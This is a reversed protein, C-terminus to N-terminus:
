KTGTVSDECVPGRGLAIHAPRDKALPWNVFLSARKTPACVRVSQTKGKRMRVVFSVMKDPQVSEYYDFNKRGFETMREYGTYPGRCTIQLWERLVRMQCDDPQSNIEQTNVVVGNDWENGQPPNSLETPVLPIPGEDAPKAVPAPTSVPAVPTVTAETATALREAQRAKKAVEAPVCTASECLFGNKCDGDSSCKALKEDSGGSSKCAVLALVVVAATLGRFRAM